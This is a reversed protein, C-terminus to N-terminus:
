ELGNDAHRWRYVAEAVEISHTDPPFEQLIRLWEDDTWESVPILRFEESTTM